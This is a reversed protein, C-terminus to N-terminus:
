YHDPLEAMPSSFFSFSFDILFIQARVMFAGILGSIMRGFRHDAGPLNGQMSSRMDDTSCM